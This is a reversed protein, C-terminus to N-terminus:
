HGAEWRAALGMAQLVEARSMRWAALIDRRKRAEHSGRASALNFWMHALVEDQPVGQGYTYMIGLNCQATPEGRDAAEQWWYVAKVYDQPVGKGRNYIV